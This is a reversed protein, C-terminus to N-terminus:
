ASFDERMLADFTRRFGDHALVGKEWRGYRGVCLVGAPDPFNTRLPKTIEVADPVECPYEIGKWGFLNSARYWRPEKRGNYVIEMDRCPAELDQGYQIWVPQSSWSYSAPRPCIARKPISSVVLMVKALGEVMGPTIEEDLICSEYEDWLRSYTERMNWVMYEGVEFQGWSTEASMDGYVKQAYIAESGRKAFTIAEAESDKTIGPIPEHLYQAGGIPSKVKRSYIIPERDTM